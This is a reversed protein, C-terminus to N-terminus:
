RDSPLLGELSDLVIVEDFSGYQAYRDVLV